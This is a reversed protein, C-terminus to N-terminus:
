PVKASPAVINPEAAMVNLMPGCEPKKLLIDTSYYGVAALVVYDTTLLKYINNQQLHQTNKMKCELTPINKAKM